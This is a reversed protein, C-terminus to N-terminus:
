ERPQSREEGTVRLSAGIQSLLSENPSVLVPPPDFLVIRGGIRASYEDVENAARVAALQQLLTVRRSRAVNGGRPTSVDVLPHPDALRQLCYRRHTASGHDKTEVLVHCLCLDGLRQVAGEPRDLGVDM